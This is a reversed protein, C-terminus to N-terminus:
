GIRLKKGNQVLAKIGPLIGIEEHLGQERRLSPFFTHYQLIIKCLLDKLNIKWIMNSINM